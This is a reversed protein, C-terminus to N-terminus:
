PRFWRYANYLKSAQVVRVVKWKRARVYITARYRAVGWRAAFFIPVVLAVWVVISGLTVTNNVRSLSLVPTHYIARWLPTFASADQLLAGGVMDFVPDLAFGFPTFILFGLVAGPVSVNCLMLVAVMVLNHLSLLPTLGFISGLAIGAAVQGPTGDSNLTRVLTQVFKLIALM